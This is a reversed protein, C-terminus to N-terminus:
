YGANELYSFFINGASEFVNASDYIGYVKVQQSDPSYVYTNYADYGLVIVSKGAGIRAIVPRQSSVEYLVNDLTCGSLDLVSGKDGFRDLLVTQDLNGDLMETPIDEINMQYSVKKNGREWIYQQARNLVVGLREDARRVAQAADNWVSDLGGYAYVYYTNEKPVQTDLPVITDGVSRMKALIVLPHLAITDAEFALRVQRGMRTSSIWEVAIQKAAAKKNNMINDKKVEIYQNKSQRSLSFEMMSESVDIDTIYLDDRHYEKKVNGEFDEIRLTHIGERVRGNDDTIIDGDRLIGYILDENMYGLTRLQQEKGPMLYRTDLTEFDILKIENEHKGQHVLWAAHANTESVVFDENQIGEDLIKFGADNIDVLYLKQAFLLFLANSASVYSLTGLDAKLFESSETGPIFVREEVVNQDSSYHYVCVGCYGEHPGRNMYGYLVFDVDGTDGVRIIKIDHDQRSDRLDGEDRRFSFIRVIKGNEPVYTWLDGQQVFAIVSGETNTMYNIEKDRIGLILGDETIVDAEPDFVQNAYRNFNLLRIRAEDYRLRYFESVDYILLSGNDNLASIQYDITISATTENIDKIVPIGKNYMKPKLSGWSVQSLTSNISINAFNTVSDAEPELYSALDDATVKDMCQEYFSHVFKVYAETNLNPRSVLRTYYYVEGRNTDLTIQLSYEQNMLLDSIISIKAQIYGEKEKLKKIKKNEIVKSGDSTRIEYSLSNVEAEYPNVLLTLKKTTDIPTLCDRTFDVQMPACYGNMRNATRGGYNVMVEPLTPNNMDSRDDTTESNLLFATGTVGLVFLLSLLLVRRLIRKM